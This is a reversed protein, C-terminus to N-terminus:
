PVLVWVSFAIMGQGDLDGSDKLVTGEIRAHHCLGGLTQREDPTDWERIRADLADMILDNEDAPRPDETNTGTRQYVIVRFELDRVPPMNSRPVHREDGVTVYIAPQAPADEWLQLRESSYQFGRSPSGWSVGDLIATLAAGIERRM